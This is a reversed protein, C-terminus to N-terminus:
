DYDSRAMAIAARKADAFGEAGYVNQSQTRRGKAWHDLGTLVGEAFKWFLLPMTAVVCAAAALRAWFSGDSVYNGILPASIWLSIALMLPFVKINILVELIRKAFGAISWSLYPQARFISWITAVIFILSFLEAIVSFAWLQRLVEASWIKELHLYKYIKVILWLVLAIPTFAIMGATAAAVAVTLCYTLAFANFAGFFFISPFVWAGIGTIGLVVRANLWLLLGTALRTVIVIKADRRSQPDRYFSLFQIDFAKLCPRLRALHRMM